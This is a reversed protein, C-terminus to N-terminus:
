DDIAVERAQRAAMILQDRLYQAVDENITEIKFEHAATVIVVNQLHFIKLIPGQSTDVNQIRNLPITKTRRLFFGKYISVANQHLLYKYFRYRYPILMVYGLTMALAVGFLGNIWSLLTSHWDFKLFINIAVAIILLVLFSSADEILWVKKAAKPLSQANKPIMVIQDRNKVNPM